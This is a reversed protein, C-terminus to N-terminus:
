SNLSEIIYPIIHFNEVKDVHINYNGEKLHFSVRKPSITVSQVENVHWTTEIPRRKSGRNYLFVSNELRLASGFSFTMTQLKESDRFRWAAYSYGLKLFWNFWRGHIPLYISMIKQSNKLKIRPVLRQGILEHGISSVESFHVSEEVEGRISVFGEEYIRFERRGPASVFATVIVVLGLAIPLLGGINNPLAYIGALLFFGGMFMILFKLVIIKGRSIARSVILKGFRHENKDETLTDVSEGSREWLWANLECLM